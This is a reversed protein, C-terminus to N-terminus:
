QEVVNEAGRLVRWGEVERGWVTEYEIVASIQSGDTRVIDHKVRNICQAEDRSRVQVERSLVTSVMSRRLKYSKRVLEEFEAFGRFIRGGLDTPYRTSAVASHRGGM